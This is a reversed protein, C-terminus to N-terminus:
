VLGDRVGRVAAEARSRAGLKGLIAAVHHTVTRYSVFLADAIERDSHGAVLLALVERERPSLGFAGVHEGHPAAPLVFPRGLVAAIVADPDARGPKRAAAFSEAGLAEVALETARDVRNQYHVPLSLGSRLLMAEIVGLLRAALEAAGEVAATLALGVLATGALAPEPFDVALSLAEELLSRARSADGLTILWGAFDSLIVITIGVSGSARVEAVAQEYFVVGEDIEGLMFAVAGRTARAYATWARDTSMTAQAFLRLARDLERATGETQGASLRNSGIVWRARAEGLADGASEALAAAETAAAEGAAFDGVLCALAAETTLARSRVIDPVPASHALAATSWRRGEPLHNISWYVWLPAAIRLAAEVDHALAWTLAARLNGLEAGIRAQWLREDPGLLHPFAHEALDVLYAAHAAKIAEAEDTAALQELAFERVTELMAFRPEAGETQLPQLLSKDVLAALVGLPHSEPSTGAGDVTGVDAVWEVAELSFGGVCVALRRFLRAEEQSLLDYSWAITDRMTQLRAPQDKGGGRLLPLLPDLRTRLAAPPLARVWAAALEIALPLGELRRCIEVVAEANERSLAFDHQVARAREIFFATAGYETLTDSDGGYGPDPLALPPTAYRREMGLRLPTRSTVLITLRPCAHLLRAIDTGAPLVHEFNDLVLLLRRGQLVEVLSETLTRDFSERLELSRAIASLVLAPDSIAALPVLIAGDEFSAVTESAVAIALRTKGVGGPGTLTLLHCEPQCLMQQLAAVDRERGILPPLAAPFGVWRRTWLPAPPVPRLRSQGVSREEAM